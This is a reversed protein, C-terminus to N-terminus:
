EKDLLFITARDFVVVPWATRDENCVYASGALIM